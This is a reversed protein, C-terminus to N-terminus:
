QCANLLRLRYNNFNRYGFARRQVLKALNNFGETRGNTLGTEFYALVEKRWKLLTTRLTKIAKLTSRAMADTLRTFVRAAKKLGKTRYFKHLAEKYTYLEKIEEHGPQNLWTWVINRKWYDLEKSNKLLLRGIPNKRRDGALEKRKKNIHPTILRLVHFKDAVLRAHPFFSLAFSKFSDSMDLIVNQVNERGDIHKLAGFLNGSAKGEVLEFVKKRDYNVIISAFETHGRKKNRKWSHEDIGVTKPWSYQNHMRRKLELQEYLTKFVFGASVHFAAEVKKLDVFNECAWLVAKKFRQTTRQGKTIGPVPETFPKKCPTCWFRRKTIVLYIVKDRVPADKARVKRHDYVSKSPTACKPCVEIESNKTAHYTTSTKGSMNFGKFELEPLLLSYAITDSPM